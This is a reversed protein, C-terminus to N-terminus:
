HPVLRSQAVAGAERRTPAHSDAADQARAREDDLLQRPRARRTPRHAPHLRRQHHVGAIKGEPVYPSWWQFRHEEGPFTVEAFERLRCLKAPIKPVTARAMGGIHTTVECVYVLRRRRGEQPKVAVVDIEGQRDSFFSNYIVVECKVIHRMYAGVLSEGLDTTSM